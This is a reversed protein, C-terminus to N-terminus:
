KSRSSFQYSINSHTCITYAHTCMFMCLFVAFLNSHAYLVARQLLKPCPALFCTGYSTYSSSSTHLPSYQLQHLQWINCLFTAGESLALLALVTALSHAVPWWVPQLQWRILLQQQQILWLHWPILQQCQGAQKTGRFGMIISWASNVAVLMDVHKFAVAHLGTSKNCFPFQYSINSQTCITNANTCM